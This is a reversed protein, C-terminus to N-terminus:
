YARRLTTGPEQLVGCNFSRGNKTCLPLSNHVRNIHTQRILNSIYVSKFCNTVIPNSHEGRLLVHSGMVSGYVVYNQSDQVNIRLHQFCIKVCFDRAHGSFICVYSM